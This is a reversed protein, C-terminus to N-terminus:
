FAIWEELLAYETGRMDQKFRGYGDASSYGGLDFHECGLSAMAQAAHWVLFHGAKARRAEAGYWGIFYEARSGFRCLIMGALPAGELYARAVFVDDPARCALAQLFAVSTGAFGKDRMHGAHRALIWELAEPTRSLEFALGNREARNLHSRWNSALGRRLEAAPRRLDLVASRWGSVGRPRFGLRQLIRRHGDSDALGPALFLVGRRGFRWRRRLAGYVAEIDAEAPSASLFLPGRNIRAAVPLGFVCRVLVLCVAVPRAGLQFVLREVQWGSEVAKADGYASAQPLAPVPLRAYLAEWRRVDAEVEIRCPMTSPASDTAAPSAPLFSSRM